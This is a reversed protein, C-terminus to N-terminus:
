RLAPHTIPPQPALAPRRPAPQRAAAATTPPAPAATVPPAPAASPQDATTHTSCGSAAVAAAFIVATITRVPRM